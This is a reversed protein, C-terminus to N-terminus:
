VYGIRRYWGLTDRITDLLPRLAGGLERQAAEPEAWEQECILMPLLAPLPSKRGVTAWALEAWLSPLVGLAAPMKWLPRAVAASECVLSFLDEVTTNHGALTLPRGYCGRHVAGAVSKAVDRTDIVNVRHQPTISIKGDILAPIWCQERAKIDWPGICATPRVVITRLGLAAADAIKAEVLEKIAFYPHVRRAWENQVSLLGAVSRKRATLTGVYVFGLDRGRLAALLRDTRVAAHEVAGAAHGAFLDLTYPAAADVVIEQNALWNDPMDSELDGRVYTVDLGALNAPVEARRSVGTVRHGQAALERVIANGILGSAGLVLANV